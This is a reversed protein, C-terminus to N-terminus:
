AHLVKKYVSKDSEAGSDDRGSRAPCNSAQAPHQDVIFVGAGLLWARLAEDFTRPVGNADDVTSILFHRDTTLALHQGCNPGYVGPVFNIQAAEAATTGIDPLLALTDITAAAFEDVSVGFIQLFVGTPNSDTIDMRQFFPTTIHNLSLYTGSACQWWDPASGLLEVCSEDWFPQYLSTELEAKDQMSEEISQTVAPDDFMEPLPLLGTDFVGRVTTQAPDFQAAIWDLHFRAGMSGASSGTVLVQTANALSPVTEDGSDSTVPGAMLMELGAELIRHGRFHLSYSSDPDAEDTLIVNSRRGAWSDSSCYYFFVLNAFALQSDPRSFIGQGEISDYAWNSSMKAATYTSGAGCWRERCSAFDACSGGAEIYLVWRNAQEASAAQRIYFVAPSGDNCIADPADITVKHMDVGSTQSPDPPSGGACPLSLAMAIPRVACDADAPNGPGSLCAQLNRLDLADVHGDSNSDSLSCVHTGNHTGIPGTQCFAFASYDKLDVDGDADVDCAVRPDTQAHVRATPVIAV